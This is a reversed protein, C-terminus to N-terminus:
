TPQALGALEGLGHNRGRFEVHLVRRTSSKTLPREAAVMERTSRIKKSEWLLDVALALSCTGIPLNRLHADKDLGKRRQGRNQRLGKAMVICAMLVHAMVIFNHDRPDATAGRHEFSGRKPRAAETSISSNGCPLLSSTSSLGSARECVCVRARANLQLAHWRSSTVWRM